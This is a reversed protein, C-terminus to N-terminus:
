LATGLGMDGYTGAPVPARAPNRLANGFTRTTGRSKAESPRQNTDGTPASPHIEIEPRRKQKLEMAFIYM